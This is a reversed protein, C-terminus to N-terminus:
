KSPLIGGGDPDLCVTPSAGDWHAGTGFVEISLAYCRGNLTPLLELKQVQGPVLTGIVTSIPNVGTSIGRVRATIPTNSTANNAVKVWFRGVGGQGVSWSVDGIKLTVDSKQLPSPDDAASVTAIMLLGVACLAALGRSGVRNSM